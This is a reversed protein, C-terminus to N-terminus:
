RAGGVFEWHWPEHNKGGAKAWDPNIWGFKGANAQLWRLVKPDKVNADVARGWGHVSTGPTATAVLHGKSKRVAVQADYSRYSDTLTLAVGERAAAARMAIWQDAATTELRHSGQGIAKLAKAPIRGNEYGGWAYASNSQGAPKPQATASTAQDNAPDAPDPAAPMPADPVDVQEHTQFPATTVLQSSAGGSIRNSMSQLVTALLGRDDFAPQTDSM